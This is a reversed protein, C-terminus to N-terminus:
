TNCLVRAGPLGQVRRPWSTKPGSAVPQTHTGRASRSQRGCIRRFTGIGLLLEGVCRLDVEYTIGEDQRVGSTNFEDRLVDGQQYTTNSLSGVEDSQALFQGVLATGGMDTDGGTNGQLVSESEAVLGLQTLHLLSPNLLDVGLGLRLDLLKRELGQM